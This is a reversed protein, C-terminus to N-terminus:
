LDGPTPQISKRLDVRKQRNDTEKIIVLDYV